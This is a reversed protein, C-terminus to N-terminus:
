SLGSSGWPSPDKSIVFVGALFIADDSGMPLQSRVESGEALLLGPWMVVERPALCRTPYWLCDVGIGRSRPGNGPGAAVGPGVLM